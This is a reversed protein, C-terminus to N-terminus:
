LSIKGFFYRSIGKCIKPDNHVSSSVNVSPNWFYTNQINQNKIQGVMTADPVSKHIKKYKNSKIKCVCVWGCVWGCVCM